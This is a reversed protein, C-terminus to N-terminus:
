GQTLITTVRQIIIHVVVPSQYLCPLTELGHALSPLRCKAQNIIKGIPENCLSQKKVEQLPKSLDPWWKLLEKVCCCIANKENFRIASSSSTKGNSEEQDQEVLRSKVQDQKVLRVYESVLVMMPSPSNIDSGEKDFGARLLAAVCQHNRNLCASNLLNKVHDNNLDPQVGHNVMMTLIETSDSRTAAHRFTISDWESLSKVARFALIKEVCSVRQLHVAVYYVSCDPLHCYAPNAGANLLGEILHPLNRCITKYLLHDLISQRLLADISSIILKFKEMENSCLAEFLDSNEEM